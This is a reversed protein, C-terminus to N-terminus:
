ERKNSMISGLNEISDRNYTKIKVSQKFCYKSKLYHMYLILSYSGTQVIMFYIFWLICETFICGGEAGERSACIWDLTKPFIVAEHTINQWAATIAAYLMTFLYQYVIHKWSILIQNMFFEIFYCVVPLM